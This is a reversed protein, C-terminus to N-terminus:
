MQTPDMAMLERQCVEWPDTEPSDVTKVDPCDEVKSYAPQVRKFTINELIYTYVRNDYFGILLSHFLAKSNVNNALLLLSSTTM